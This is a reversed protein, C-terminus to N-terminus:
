SKKKTPQNRHFMWESCEKVFTGSIKTTTTTQNADRATLCKSLQWVSHLENCHKKAPKPM